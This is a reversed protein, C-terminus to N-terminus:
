ARVRRASYTICRKASVVLCGRCKQWGDTMWKFSHRDTQGGEGLQVTTALRRTQSWRTQSHLVRRTYQQLEVSEPASRPMRRVSFRLEKRRPSSHSGPLQAGALLDVLHLPTPTILSPFLIWHHSIDETNYPNRPRVQSPRPESKGRSDALARNLVSVEFM